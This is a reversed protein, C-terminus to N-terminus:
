PTSSGSPAAPAAYGLAAEAPVGYGLGADAYGDGGGPWCCGPMLDVPYYPPSCCCDCGCGCSCSCSHSCCGCGCSWCCSFSCCWAAAREGAVSLLALAAACALAYKKM